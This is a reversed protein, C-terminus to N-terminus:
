DYDGTEEDTLIIVKTKNIIKLGNLFNYYSGFKLKQSTQLVIHTLNDNLEYKNWGYEIIINNIKIESLGSRPMELLSKVEKNLLENTAIDIAEQNQEDRPVLLSIIHSLLIFLLTIIIIFLIFYILSVRVFVGREWM